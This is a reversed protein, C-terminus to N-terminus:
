LAKEFIHKEIEEIIDKKIIVSKIINIIAGFNDDYTFTLYCKKNIGKTKQKKIYINDNKIYEDDRKYNIRYLNNLKYYKPQKLIKPILKLYEDYINETQCILRIFPYKDNLYLNYKINLVSNFETYELCDIM